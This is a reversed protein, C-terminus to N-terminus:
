EAYIVGQHRGMICPWYGIIGQFLEIGDLSHSDTYKQDPNGNYHSDEETPCRFWSEYGSWPRDESSLETTASGFNCSYSDGQVESQLVPQDTNEFGGAQWNGVNDNGHYFSDNYPFPSDYDSCCYRWSNYPLHHEEEYISNTSYVAEEYPPCISDHFFDDEQLSYDANESPCSEFISELLPPCDEYIGHIDEWCSFLAAYDEIHKQEQM